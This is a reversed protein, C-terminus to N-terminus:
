AISLKRKIAELNREADEISRKCKTCPLTYSLGHFCSASDSVRTECEHKSRERKFRARRAAWAGCEEAFRLRERRESDRLARELNFSM